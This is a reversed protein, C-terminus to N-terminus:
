HIRRAQPQITSCDGLIAIQEPPEADTGEEFAELIVSKMLCCCLAVCHLV